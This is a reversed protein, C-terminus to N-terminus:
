VRSKRGEGGGGGGGEGGSAGWPGTLMVSIFVMHPLCILFLVIIRPPPRSSHAATLSMGSTTAWSAGPPTGPAAALVPASRFSPPSCFTPAVSAVAPSWTRTDRTAAGSAAASVTDSSSAWLATRAACSASDALRFDPRQPRLQPLGAFVTSASLVYGRRFPPDRCGITTLAFCFSRTGHRAFGVDLTGAVRDAYENFCHYTSLQPRSWTYAVLVASERNFGRM